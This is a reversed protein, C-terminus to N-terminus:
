ADLNMTREYKSKQTTEKNMCMTREFYSNNEFLDIQSM